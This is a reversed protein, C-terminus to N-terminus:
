FVLNTQGLLFFAQNWYTLYPCVIEEPLVLFHHIWINAGDRGVLDNAARNGVKTNVIPILDRWVWNWLQAIAAFVIGHYSTSEGTRLIVSRNWDM